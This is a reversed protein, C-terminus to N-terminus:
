NRLMPTLIDVTDKMGIMMGIKILQDCMMILLVGALFFLLLDLWRSVKDVPPPTSNPTLPEVTTEPKAPTLQGKLATMSKAFPSEKPDYPEARLEKKPINTVPIPSAKMDKTQLYMDLDEDEYGAVDGMNVQRMKMVPTVTSSTEQSMSLDVAKQYQRKAEEPVPIEYMPPSLPSCTATAPSKRSPPNTFGEVQQKSCVRYNDCYYKQDAKMSNYTPEDGLTGVFDERGYKPFAQAREKRDMNLDYPDASAASRLSDCASRKKRVTRDFSPVDYAEQISCYM